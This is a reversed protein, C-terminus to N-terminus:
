YVMWIGESNLWSKGQKNWKVYFSSVNQQMWHIATSNNHLLHHQIPHRQSYELIKTLVKKKKM